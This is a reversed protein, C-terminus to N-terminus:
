NKEECKDCVQVKCKSYGSAMFQEFSYITILEYTYNGSEKDENCSTTTFYFDSSSWDLTNGGKVFSYCSIDTGTINFVYKGTVPAVGSTKANEIVTTDTVESGVFDNEMSEVSKKLFNNRSSLGALISVLILLFLIMITYLVGTIAFGKNNM